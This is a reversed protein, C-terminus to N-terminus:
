ARRSGRKPREASRAAEIQLRMFSAKLETAKIWRRGGWPFFPLKGEDAYRRVMRVTTHGFGLKRLFEATREFDLFECTSDHLPHINTPDM